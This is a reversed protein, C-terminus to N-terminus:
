LGGAGAGVGGDGRGGGVGGARGGTAAPRRGNVARSPAPQGRGKAPRPPAPLAAPGPAPAHPRATVYLTDASASFGAVAALPAGSGGIASDGARGGSVTPLPAPLLVHYRSTLPAAATASASPGRIFTTLEIGGGRFVDDATRGGGAKAAAYRLNPADIDCFQPTIPV